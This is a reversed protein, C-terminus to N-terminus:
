FPLDNENNDTTSLSFTDQLCPNSFSEICEGNNCINYGMGKEAILFKKPNQIKSIIREVYKPRMLIVFFLKSKDNDYVPNSPDFIKQKFCDHLEHNPNNFACSLPLLINLKSKNLKIFKHIEQSMPKSLYIYENQYQFTDTVDAFLIIGDDKLFPELISLLSRYMRCNLNFDKRYFENVIKFSTILDFNIKREALLNNIFNIFSDRTNAEKPSPIQEFRINDIKFFRNLIKEQIKLAEKNGDISLICINKNLLNNELLFYLLGTLNGGTGSGIDLINIEDKNIFIEKIINNQYIDNFIYNCEIFSRPHYTGLYKKMLEEDFNLTDWKKLKRYLNYVYKGELDKYIYNFIKGKDSEERIREIIEKKEEEIINTIEIYEKDLLIRIQEFALNENDLIDNITEDPIETYYKGENFLLIHPFKYNGTGGSWGVKRQFTLELNYFKNFLKGWFIENIEKFVIILIDDQQLINYKDTGADWAFLGKGRSYINKIDDLNTNLTNEFVEIPVYSKLTFNNIRNSKYPQKYLQM